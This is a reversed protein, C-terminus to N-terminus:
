AREGESGDHSPLRQAALFRARDIARRRTPAWYRRQGPGPIILYGATKWAIIGASGYMIWQCRRIMIQGTVAQMPRTDEIGWAAGRVIRM